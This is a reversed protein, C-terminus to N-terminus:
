ELVRSVDVLEELSGKWGDELTRDFVEQAQASLEERAAVVEAADPDLDNSIFVLHSSTELQASERLHRLLPLAVRLSIVECAHESRLSSCASSTAGM